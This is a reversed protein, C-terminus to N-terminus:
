GYYRKKYILGNARALPGPWSATVSKGRQFSEGRRTQDDRIWWKPCYLCLWRPHRRSIGGLKSHLRAVLLRELTQQTWSLDLTEFLPAYTPFCEDGLPKQKYDQRDVTPIPDKFYAGFYMKGACHFDIKEVWRWVCICCRWFALKRGFYDDHCVMRVRLSRVAIRSDHWSTKARKFRDQGGSSSDFKSNRGHSLGQTYDVIEFTAGKLIVSRGTFEFRFRRWQWAGGRLSLDSDEGNDHGEGNEKM